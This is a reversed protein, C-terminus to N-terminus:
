KTVATYAGAFGVGAGAATLGLGWLLCAIIDGPGGWTPHGLYLTAM